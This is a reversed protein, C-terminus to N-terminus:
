NIKTTATSMNGQTQADKKDQEDDDVVSSLRWLHYWKSTCFLSAVAYFVIIQFKCNHLQLKFNCQM